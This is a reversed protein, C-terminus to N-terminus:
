RKIKRQDLREKNIQDQLTDDIDTAAFALVSSQIHSSNAQQYEVRYQKHIDSLALIERNSRKNLEKELAPNPTTVTVKDNEYGLELPENAAISRTLQERLDYDRPEPFVLQKQVRTKLDSDRYIHDKYQYSIDISDDSNVKFNTTIGKAQLEKSFLSISTKGDKPLATNLEKILHLRDQKYDVFRAMLSTADLQVDKYYSAKHPKSNRLGDEGVRYYIFGTNTEEARAPAKVKALAVNLQEINEPRESKIATEIHKAIELKTLQRNDSIILGQEKEIKDTINKSRVRDFNHNIKVQREVDVRSTLIHVHPHETDFHRYIIYPQKAYGMRELYTKSLEVLKENDLNPADDKHFNLSVHFVPKVTRSLNLTEFIKNLTKPQTGYLKQTYLISAQGANVKKQNYNAAAYFSSGSGINAIM